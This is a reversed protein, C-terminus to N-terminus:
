AKLINRFKVLHVSIVFHFINKMQLPVFQQLAGGQSLCTFWLLKALASILLSCCRNMATTM